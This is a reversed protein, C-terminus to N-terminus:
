SLIQIPALPHILYTRGNKLSTCMYRKRRLEGKTFPHGNSLVFREGESINELTLAKEKDFSKLLRLLDLDASASAKPSKMHLILQRHLAEPFIRHELLPKIVSQFAQKWERGHPKVKHRYENWVLLHAIEHCLTILFAYSNLDSNISIRHGAGGFPSRYDGWKSNRPSKIHLTVKERTLMANLYAFSNEPIYKKLGEYM